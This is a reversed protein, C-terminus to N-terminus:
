QPYERVRLEEPWQEMDHSVKDNISVQKVFVAVGAEKCQHVVDIMWQLECPRRKPGSECGLVIWDIGGTVRDVKTDHWCCDCEFKGPDDECSRCIFEGLYRRRVPLNSVLEIPGLMPEISVWRVATPIQLLVRVRKDFFKQNEASVGLWENRTFNGAFTKALFQKMRDPRKTLFQFQHKKHMGSEVFVQEIFKDPIDHHFLDTMSCVFVRRPKRWRMPKEIINRRLEFEKKSGDYPGTGWLRKSMREAYCNDCGPSVKSCAHGGGVRGIPNWTEETWAIKHAM